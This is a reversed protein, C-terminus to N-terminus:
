AFFSKTVISYNAFHYKMNCEFKRVKNSTKYPALTEKLWNQDVFGVRLKRTAILWDSAYRVTVDKVSGDNHFAMVYQLPKTANQEIEKPPVITADLCDIAM